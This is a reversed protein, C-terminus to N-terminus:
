SLPFANRWYIKDNKSRIFTCKWRTGNLVKSFDVLSKKPSYIEPEPATKRYVNVRFKFGDDTIFACILYMGKPAWSKDMLTVTFTGDINILPYENYPFNAKEEVTTRTGYENM